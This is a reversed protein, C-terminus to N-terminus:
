TWILTPCASGSPSVVANASSSAACSARGALSTEPFVHPSRRMSTGLRSLVIRGPRLRWLSASRWGDLERELDAVRSEAQSARTEATAILQGQASIIADLATVHDAHAQKLAGIAVTFAAGGHQQGDHRGGHEVDSGPERPVIASMPVAVRARGDNGAV